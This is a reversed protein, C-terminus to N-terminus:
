TRDARHTGHGSSRSHLLTPSQLDYVVMVLEEHDLTRKEVLLVLEEPLLVLHLGLFINQQSLYPLTGTLVGRHRCSDVAM